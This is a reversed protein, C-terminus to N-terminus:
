EETCIRDAAETGVALQWFGVCQQFSDMFIHAVGVRWLALYLVFATNKVNLVCGTLADGKGCVRIRSQCLRCDLDPLPTHLICDRFLHV